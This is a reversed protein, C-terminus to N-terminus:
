LRKEVCKLFFIDFILNSAVKHVFNYMSEYASDYTYVAGIYMWSSLTAPGNVSVTDKNPTM